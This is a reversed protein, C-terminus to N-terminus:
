TPLLLNVWTGTAGSTVDLHAGISAARQQMNAHEIRQASPDFGTSDDHFSLLIGGRLADRSL